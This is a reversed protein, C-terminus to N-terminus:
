LQPGPEVAALSPVSKHERHLADCLITFAADIHVLCWGAPQELAIIADGITRCERCTIWQKKAKLKALNQGAKTKTTVLDNEVLRSAKNALFANVPCDNVVGVSAMFARLDDFLHNFDVVLPKGGIKCSCANQTKSRFARDFKRLEAIALRALEKAMDRCNSIPTKEKLLVTIAHNLTKVDRISFAQNLRQM